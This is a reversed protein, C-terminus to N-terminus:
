WSQHQRAALEDLSHQERRNEVQGEERQFRDVAKGLATGRLHKNLWRSRLLQYRSRANEVVQRQAEIAESLRKMFAQQELLLMSNVANASGSQEQYSNFYEILDQLKTEGQHLLQAQQEMQVAVSKAENSALNELSAMRESRLKTTAM